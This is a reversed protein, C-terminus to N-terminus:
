DHTALYRALKNITPHDYAVLPDIKRWMWVSLEETLVIVMMSDLGMEAFRRDNDVGGRKKLLKHLYAVLWTRIEEESFVRPQVDTKKELNHTNSM